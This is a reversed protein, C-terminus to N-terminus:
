IIAYRVDYTGGMDLIKGGDFIEEKPIRAVDVDKKWEIPEIFDNSAYM